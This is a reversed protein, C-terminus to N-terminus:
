LGAPSSAREAAAWRRFQARFEEREKERAALARLRQGAAQATRPAMARVADLMDCLALFRQTPTRALNVEIQQRISQDFM